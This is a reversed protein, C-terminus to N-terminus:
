EKHGRCVSGEWIEISEKALPHSHEYTQRALGPVCGQYHMVGEPWRVVAYRNPAVAGLFGDPPRVSASAPPGVVTVRRPDVRAGLAKAIRHCQWANWLSVLGIAGWVYLPNM